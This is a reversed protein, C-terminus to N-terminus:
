YNVKYLYLGCGNLKTIASGKKPNNLLLILDNISKKNENVDLLCGVIMRVMNRLFGNGNIFILYQDHYKKIKIFNITRITDDLESTSFSLFNHKGLLIKSAKRLKYLHIKQSYFYCYNHKFVNFKKTNLVYLYTKDKANFRASFKEDVIDVKKFHL